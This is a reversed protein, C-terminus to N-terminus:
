DDFKYDERAPSFVDTIRCSTISRGSHIANSPIVIVVGPEMIYIEGEVTLEFKGELITSIQEQHHSHEPINVGAEFQWFAQTMNKSHVFKVESGPVLSKGIEEELRIYKRKM